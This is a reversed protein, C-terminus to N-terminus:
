VCGDAWACTPLDDDIAVVAEAVANTHNSGHGASGAERAKEEVAKETEGEAERKKEDDFARSYTPAGATGLRSTIVAICSPSDLRTVLDGPRIAESVKM